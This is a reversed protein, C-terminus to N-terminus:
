VKALGDQPILGELDESSTVLPFVPCAPAYAEIYKALFVPTPTPSISKGRMWSVGHLGWLGEASCKLEFYAGCATEM